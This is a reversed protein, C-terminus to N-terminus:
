LLLLALVFGVGAGKLFGFFGKRRGRKKENTIMTKQNEIVTNLITLQKDKLSLDTKQIGIINTQIAIVSDKSVIRLQLVKNQEIAANGRIIKSYISDRQTETILRGQSYIGSTTLILLIIILKLNKM